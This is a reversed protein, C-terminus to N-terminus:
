RSPRVRVAVPLSATSPGVGNVAIVRFVYRAPRLHQFAVRHVTGSVATTKGSSSIVRYRVISSGGDSPETWSILASRGSVRAHPRAVRGPVTSPTVQNSSESAPGTGVANTGRVTFTYATGNSLGGVTASTQDGAVTVTKGGPATTVTYGAVPSGNGSPRAWSVRASKDGRVAEVATPADPAAAPIVGNSPASAASGGVANTATVTFTYATGNSLGPVTASTKDGAVTITAGGPAATWAYGTVPSGNDAAASWSVVASRDGRVASVGTVVGPVGAPTVVNSPESAPGTGVDNTATV